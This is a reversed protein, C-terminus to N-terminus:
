TTLQTIADCVSRSFEDLKKGNMGRDLARCIDACELGLEVHDLKNAMSDQNYTFMSRGTTHSPSRVRIMTLLISVSGFVAMAPAVGSAEKALNMADIALNLSSLTGDRGKPQQSKAAM